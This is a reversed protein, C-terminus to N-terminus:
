DPGTLPLGVIGQLTALAQRYEVLTETYDVEARTMDRGADFLDGPESTDTEFGLKFAEVTARAAPIVEGRLTLAKSRSAQLRYYVESLMADSEAKAASREAQARAINQRGERVGAKKTDFIPLAIEIDLLWDRGGADDEWRAGAGVSLNPMREAEAVALAAESRAVETEWRAIIPSQRSLELLEVLSHVEQMRDLDGVAETFLPARSDWSTALRFRAASLESEAEQLEIRALAVQRRSQHGELARMDGSEVLAMIRTHTREFFEASSKLVELKRQAGLVAAFRCAVATSVEIRKAEYDWGALDREARALETRRRRKGGLELEQRLVMRTREEDPASFRRPIGLRYLRVDLEPNPLKKAQLERAESARVEWSFAELEPNHMLALALADEITLPGAKEVLEMEDTAHAAVVIIMAALAIAPWYTLRRM